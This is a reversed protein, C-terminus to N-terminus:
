GIGWATTYDAGQPRQVVFVYDKPRSVPIASFNYKIFLGVVAVYATKVARRSEGHIANLLVEVLWRVNNFAAAGFRFICDIWKGCSVM